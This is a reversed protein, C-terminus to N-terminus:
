LIVKGDLGRGFSIVYNVIVQFVVFFFWLVGWCKKDAEEQLIWNIRYFVTERTANRWWVLATLLYALEM